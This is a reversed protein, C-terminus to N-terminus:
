QVAKETKGYLYELVKGALRNLPYERAVAGLHFAERPMGYVVCSAEDQGLTWAGATRMRLMGAAGDQGMGTLIVAVAHQRLYKAASDFLVDVSPRHRNVPELQSLAIRYGSGGPKIQMHYNGPAIYAMGSQVIEGDEAEKVRMPCTSNLREAFTYTFKEPMHQVILIPPCDAPLGCLFEKIAETGGTSAGIFILANKRYTGKIIPVMTKIAKAALTKAPKLRAKAVMRIKDRIEEAYAEMGHHADYEPKALFDVAGLELAALTIESGQQTRSSVMLVPIPRLRMLRKLFELGDMRPMEVDLTIVDPDTDRIRERAILPDAATAVVEMDKADNIITTLVRRILASDDVVVVRIKRNLGM